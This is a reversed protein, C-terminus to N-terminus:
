EYRERDHRHRPERDRERSEHYQYGAAARVTHLRYVEVLEVTRHLREYETLDNGAIRMFVADDRMPGPPLVDVGDIDPHEYDATIYEWVPNELYAAIRRLDSDM